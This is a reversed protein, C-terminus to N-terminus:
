KYERPLTQFALARTLSIREAKKATILWSLEGPGITRSNSITSIEKILYCEAYSRCWLRYTQHGCGGGHVNYATVSRRPQALNIQIVISVVTSPSFHVDAILVEPGSRLM